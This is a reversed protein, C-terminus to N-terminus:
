LIRYKATLLKSIDNLSKFNEPKIDEFQFTIGFKAELRLVLDVTLASDLLDIALLDTEPQVPVSAVRPNLEKLIELVISRVDEMTNIYM